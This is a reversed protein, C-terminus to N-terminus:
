ESKCGEIISDANHLVRKLGAQPQLRNFVAGPVADLFNSNEKFAKLHLALYEKLGESASEMNQSIDEANVVELISIIDEMDHSGYFDGNGRGLFAEVKTALFYLLLLIKVEPLPASLQFAKKYGEKYWKNTFGFIKEEVSMIDVTVEQVIWRCLPAGERTDNVFGKKRLDEELKWNEQHSLIELVIDIDKTVRARPWYEEPIYFPITAGGVFVAKEGIEGLFHAVLCIHEILETKNM